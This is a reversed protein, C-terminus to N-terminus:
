QGEISAPLRGPSEIRLVKSHSHAGCLITVQRRPVDFTKALFAALKANAKGDVPPARLRVRLADDIPEGLADVSARPQVRLTLILAEGEWRYWTAGATAPLQSRAGDPSSAADTQLRHM